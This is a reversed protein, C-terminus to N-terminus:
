CLQRPTWVLGLLRAFLSRPQPCAHDFEEGRDLLRLQVAEVETVNKPQQTTAMTVTTAETTSLETTTENVSETTTKKKRQARHKSYRRKSRNNLNVPIFGGTDPAAGSLVQGNYSDTLSAM